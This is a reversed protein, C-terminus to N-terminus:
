KPGWVATMTDSAKTGTGGNRGGLSTPSMTRAPPTTTRTPAGPAATRPKPTIGVEKLLARTEEAVAQRATEVNPYARGTSLVNRFATEVLKKYDSLDPHESYFLTKQREAEQTRIVSTFPAMEDRFSKLQGQFLTQAITVAQRAVGQLANNLAVVQEPKSPPMGLIAEYAKDDATYVNLQKALEADSQEPRTPTTSPAAQRFGSAIADTLAKLDPANPAAPPTAPSQTPTSTPPQTGDPPTTKNPDPTFAPKAANHADVLGAEQVWQPPTDKPGSGFAAAPSTSLTSNGESPASPAAPAAPAVGGPNANENM